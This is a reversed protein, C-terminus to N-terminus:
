NNKKRKGKYAFLVGSLSLLLVIVIYRIQIGTIVEKQLTGYVAEGAVMNVTNAAFAQPAPVDSTIVHEEVAGDESSSFSQKIFIAFPSLHSAVFSIEKENENIENIDCSIEELLGNDDLTAVRINEADWFESPVPMTINLKGTSMKKIPIYDTKDTMDISMTNMNVGDYSGYRNSFASNFKSKLSDDKSVYLNFKELNDPLVAKIRSTNFSNDGSIVSILNSNNSINESNDSQVAFNIDAILANLSESNEGNVTIGSVPKECWSCDKYYEFASESVGNLYYDFGDLNISSDVTVMGDNEPDKMCKRLQVYNEGSDTTDSLSFVEGRFGSVNQSFINGSSLNANVPVIAYNTGNFAPTRLDSASLRTATPKYTLDPLDVGNFTAYELGGNVMTTDFAGLGIEKITMPLQVSRLNTDKFARDEIIELNRPLIINSIKTCGNFADEGIKVLSEPLVVTKIRTNGEFVGAGIQKVSNPIRVESGHGKYAVLIGDGLILFNNGDEIQKWNNIFGTGTFAGLEIDKVSGPINVNTLNYCNYFAAYGIKETGYPVDISTISSRAFAFDGIENLNSPLAVTNINNNKYFVRNGVKTVDDPIVIDSDSGGYHGFVGDIIDFIRGSTARFDDNTSSSNWSDAISDETQAANMDFGRVIMDKPNLLFVANGGVIVTSSMEGETTGPISNITEGVTSAFSDDSLEDSDQYDESNVASDDYEETFGENYTMDSPGYEGSESLVEGTADNVVDGKKGDMSTFAEEDIFGVSTPVTLKTLNTCGGFAGKRIAKLSAPLQVNNLATCNLFAYEPIEEIGYVVNIDTLMNAGYFCFEDIESVPEPIQYTSYPRGALYQHVKKGNKSYLVGDLCIFNRNKEDISIDSLNPCAAFAASGINDVYKPINIDTLNQCGSFASAGISKVGDGLQVKTLNKCNEFAAYDINVVEDPIYVRMLNNNGSFADKGISTIGLPITIDNETGTYSVLTGGDIVYDGKSYTADVDAAPLLLLIVATAALLIAIARRITKAM